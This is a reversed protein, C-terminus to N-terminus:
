KPQNFIFGYKICAEGVTPTYVLPMVDEVNSSLVKYFLRENRDLLHMLYVYRDLDTALRKLNDLVLKEQHELSQVAPPLLGHIGLSQREEISFSL